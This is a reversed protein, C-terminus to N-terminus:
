YIFNNIIEKYKGNEVERYTVELLPIGHEKCYKRKVNDRIQQYKLGEEGGFLPYPHYHQAGQVEILKNNVQFDFKLVGKESYKCDDFSVQTKVDVGLSLLYKFVRKETQSLSKSCKNCLERNRYRIKTWPAFFHEGCRCIWELKNNNSIYETSVLVVEKEHIELWRHINYISYINTKDVMRPTRNFINGSSVYYKFGDKDMLSLRSKWLEEKEEKLIKYGLNEVKIRKEKSLM